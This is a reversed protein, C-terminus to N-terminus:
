QRQVEFAKRYAPTVSKLLAATVPMSIVYTGEAYSGAVYPDAIIRLSDFEYDFDSDVPVITLEKRKPCGVSDMKRRLREADLKRCYGPGIQAWLAASGSFLKDLDVEADRDTDWLLASSGHNGHAGGTFTDVHSQLSLLPYAQGTVIWDRWFEQRHFPFDPHDKRIDFEAQATAMAEAYQADRDSTIKALLARYTGVITPFSYRFDLLENTSLRTYAQDGQPAPGQAGAPAALFAALLALIPNPLTM